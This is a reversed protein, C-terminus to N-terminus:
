LLTYMEEFILIGWVLSGENMSYVYWVWCENLGGELVEM